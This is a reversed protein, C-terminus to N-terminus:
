CCMGHFEKDDMSLIEVTIEDRFPGDPDPTKFVPPIAANSNPLDIYVHYQSTHNSRFPPLLKIPSVCVCVCGCVGVCVCVCEGCECECLVCLCM